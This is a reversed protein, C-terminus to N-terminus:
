LPSIDWMLDIQTVLFLLTIPDKGGLVPPSQTPLQMQRAKGFHNNGMPQSTNVSLLPTLPLQCSHHSPKLSPVLPQRPLTPLLPQLWFECSPPPTQPPRTGPLLRHKLLPTDGPPPPNNSVHIQECLSDRGEIGAPLVGEWAFFSVFLLYNERWVPLRKLVFILKVEDVKRWQFSDSQPTVLRPTNPTLSPTIHTM